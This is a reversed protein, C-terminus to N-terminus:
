WFIFVYVSVYRTIDFAVYKTCNTKFVRCHTFYVEFHCLTQCVNHVDFHFDCNFCTTSHSYVHCYSFLFWWCVGWASLCSKTLKEWMWSASVQQFSRWYELDYRWKQAIISLGWLLYQIYWTHHFFLRYKENKM